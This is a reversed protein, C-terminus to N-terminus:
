GDTLKSLVFEFVNVLGQGSLLLQSDDRNKVKEKIFQDFQQDTDTYLPLRIAGTEASNVHYNGKTGAIKMPERTLQCAGLGTGIGIVLKVNDDSWSEAEPEYVTMVESQDLDIIGYGNAVFDNLM